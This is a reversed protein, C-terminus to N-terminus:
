YGNITEIVHQVQEDSIGYFMPLSLETESILEALPLAGKKINLKQYADQLHMPIPYHILTDIGHDNLFAQLRDREETRVPFIHWVHDRDDGTVPLLVKANRIGSLYRQAVTQRERNWRDLHKLKVRLVAAQMEDLRSNHGQYIHSYKKDSGYNSLARVKDAIAKDNTVVAGADGMAGLNKGPYFSFGAADGLSGTRQGKYCAGHAQAADEIVVLGYEKAIANIEDMGAAQGYLHVPMIAKTRATIKERIRAPDILYTDIRPEVFVPTAGSYTVALATAIYTNSPIIVEDGSGIGYARLLLYLADLGNGVGVCHNVGCYRAYEEEFLRKQEGSIFWNSQVVSEIEKLIDSQIERHMPEFFNFPVRM